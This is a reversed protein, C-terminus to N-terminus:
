KAAKAQKAIQKAYDAKAVIYKFSQDKAELKHAKFTIVETMGTFKEAQRGYLMKIAVPRGFKNTETDFVSLTGFGTKHGESDKVPRLIGVVTKVIGDRNVELRSKHATVPAKKNATNTQTTKANTAM